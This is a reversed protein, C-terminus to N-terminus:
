DAWIEESDFEEWETQEGCMPCYLPLDSVGFATLELESDCVDCTTGYEKLDEDM